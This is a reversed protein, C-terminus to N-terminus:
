IIGGNVSIVQRTIYGAGESLLYVALSAVEEPKGARGMPIASLMPEVPIDKTMDTEIFGPAICNVTIKRSALETALAKTAGIIGAKSASYNVQGRNGIIGSVSAITIIRGRKKRCLPMVLPKLVNYFGDLNTHIVSDWKEDTLAPFVDDRCIGANLVIGWFAGNEESWKELKAACDARDSINFQLLSCKGGLSEIEAKLNEAKEKGNNYHAVIEYGAQAAALAIARGIGGSGGTVLVKKGDNENM